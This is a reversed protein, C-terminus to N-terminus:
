EKKHKEEYAKRIPATEILWEDFRANLKRKWKTSGAICCGNKFAIIRAFAESFDNYCHDEIYCMTLQDLAWEFYEMVKKEKRREKEAKSLKM